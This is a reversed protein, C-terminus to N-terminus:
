FDFSSKHIESQVLFIPIEIASDLHRPIDLTIKLLYRCEILDSTFTPTWRSNTQLSSEIWSERTIEEDPFYEEELTRKTNMKHGKPAVHEERIIEARVGRIKAVRDVSFRFTAHNGLSIHDEDIHIKLLPKGDIEITGSKPNSIPETQLGLKFPVFLDVDSKLDRAWSIEAKANLTFKISGYSGVYSGPIDPPLTFSFDYRSEGIPIALNEGLEIRREIHERKEEHVITVKGAHIVVRALEIGKLSIYIRECQFDNDCTIIAHGEVKEGPNFTENELQIEIKRM